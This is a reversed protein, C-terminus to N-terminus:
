LKRHVAVVYDDDAFPARDWTAWRAVFSLGVADCRNDYDAVSLRGGGTQFGAVVLGGPRLHSAMNRLVAEETGPAVFIMVNGAMVVIDFDDGAGVTVLDGLLWRQSPAKRRAEDLMPQDLDVGVTDVGRSALEIAVRGTGCGADLVRGPPGLDHEALLSMVLDAEGHISQGSAAMAKWREDYSAGRQVDDRESWRSVDTM